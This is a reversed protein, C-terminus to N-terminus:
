HVGCFNDILLKKICSPTRLPLFGQPSHNFCFVRTFLSFLFNLCTPNCHKARLVYSFDINSATRHLDGQMGIQIEIRDRIQTVAKIKIYNRRTQPKLYYSIYPYPCNCNPYSYSYAVDNPKNKRWLIQYSIKHNASNHRIFEIKFMVQVSFLM